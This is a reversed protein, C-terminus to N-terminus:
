TMSKVVLIVAVNEMSMAIGLYGVSRVKASSARHRTSPAGTSPPNTRDTRVTVGIYRMAM